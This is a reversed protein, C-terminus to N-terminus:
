NDVCDVNTRPDDLMRRLCSFYSKLLAVATPSLKWSNSSNPDAGATLLLDIMDPYGYACAYHLPTNNSSDPDDYAAGQTLLFSAIALNGNKAALLLSSRKIKDKALLKAGQEVLFKVM